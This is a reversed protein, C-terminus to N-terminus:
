IRPDAEIAETLSSHEDMGLYAYDVKRPTSSYGKNLVECGIQEAAESPDEARNVVAEDARTLEVIVLLKVYLM